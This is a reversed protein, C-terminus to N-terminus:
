DENLRLTQSMSPRLVVAAMTGLALICVVVLAVFALVLSLPLVIQAQLVYQLAYFEDSSISSLVGTAPISTFALTSIATFSIIAGFVIGLLLATAYIVVQEWILVGTVQVPSAGLARLVAFNTLRIRVNLWSALLNGVLTLLLATIAGITLIIVLSLYLPDTLMTDILARRDYLNTLHLAPSALAARVSAIASSTNGSSLWVHNIPLSTGSGNGNVLTDTKYVAAYTAYDVLVGGPPTYSGTSAATSDNVTPIHQVVAIVACNLTNNPLNDVAISFINGSKLNLRQATLTDIIAPVVDSTVANKRNHVLANMLVSLSQALDQVSWIATHAYTQADVARVEMPITLTTGSATGSGVYGVTASTVGAISHYLATEHQVTLHQSTVALDGSFDAGSEYSAIDSIHQAQSASFILTFIAFAVALALLMTMRVSQRPARAMQALALMSTAGRRRVTLKAAFQLIATFFRLFLILAAILLFLPAILTLPAAVLVKTRADLLNGISALYISIGYAVIAVIAAVVDLNLRQWLPRQTSRASRRRISVINAGSARWLLLGMIMIVVLVTIGAYWGINLAAQVPQGTLLQVASQDGSGLISQAILSVVFVALIPGALLAIIGLVVSQVLLAGFIQGGSAGRTRM